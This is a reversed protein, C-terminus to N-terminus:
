SFNSPTSRLTLSLQHAVSDRQSQLGVVMRIEMLHSNIRAISSDMRSLESRCYKVNAELEERTSADPFPFGGAFHGLLIFGVQALLPM